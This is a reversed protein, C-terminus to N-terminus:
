SLFKWFHRIHMDSPQDKGHNGPPFLAFHCGHDPAFALATRHGKSAEKIKEEIQLFTEINEKLARISRRGLPTFRHMYYDYDGNYLVILDHQDEEILKLAKRNCEEKTSYIFYDLKRELFIKSISDGETSVISVRRGNEILEDFVTRCKLVPKVYAEIGHDKPQLGTYMSAFCVPTVSPMVSRMSLNKDLNDLLPQFLEMKKEYVWEAVADPNFVFVRDVTGRELLEPIPPAMKEGKEVGLLSLITAAVQDITYRTDMM